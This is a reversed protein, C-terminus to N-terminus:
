KARRYLISSALLASGPVSRSNREDGMLKAIVENSPRLVKDPYRPKGKKIVRLSSSPRKEGYRRKLLRENIVMPLPKLALLIRYATLSIQFEHAKM